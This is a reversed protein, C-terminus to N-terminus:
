SLADELCLSVHCVPNSNMGMCDFSRLSMTLAEPHASTDPLQHCHGDAELVIVALAHVASVHVMRESDPFCEKGLHLAKMGERAYSTKLLELVVPM